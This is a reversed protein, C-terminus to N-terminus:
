KSVNSNISKSKIMGVHKKKRLSNKFFICYFGPFKSYVQIIDVHSLPAWPVRRDVDSLKLLRGDADSGVGM